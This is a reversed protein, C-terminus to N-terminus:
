SRSLLVKKRGRAVRDMYREFAAPSLRKRAIVVTSASLSVNM